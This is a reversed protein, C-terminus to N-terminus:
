AEAFKMTPCITKTTDFFSVTCMSGACFQQLTPCASNSRLEFCIERPAEEVQAPTFLYPQTSSTAIRFTKSDWVWPKPKGDVTAAAVSGKCSDPIYWEQLLFIRPHISFPVTLRSGPSAFNGPM